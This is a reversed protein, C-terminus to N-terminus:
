DLFCAGTRAADPERALSGKRKAHVTDAAKPLPRAGNPGDPYEREKKSM